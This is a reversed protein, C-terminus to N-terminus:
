IGALRGRMKLWRGLFRVNVPASSFGNDSKYWWFYIRLPLVIPAAYQYERYNDMDLLIILHLKILGLSCFNM